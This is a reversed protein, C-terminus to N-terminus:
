DVILVSDKATVTEFSADLGSNDEVTISFYLTGGRVVPIEAEYYHEGVFEYAVDPQLEAWRERDIRKMVMPASDINDYGYELWVGKLGSADAARVLVTLPDGAKVTTGEELKFMQQDPNDDMRQINTANRPLTDRHRMFVVWGNGTDNV